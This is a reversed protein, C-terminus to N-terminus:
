SCLHLSWDPLEWVGYANGSNDNRHGQGWPTGGLHWLLIGKHQAYRKALATDIQRVKERYVPSTLCHNHREGYHMRQFNRDCRLVEPYREAMWAPRAGSPTALVIGIGADTPRDIVADLWAFNYQGEAPELQTWAFIGISVANVHAKKMLRIDEQLIEPYDLWQDPNYDGGHLFRLPKYPTM